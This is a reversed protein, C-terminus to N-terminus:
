ADILFDRDVQLFENEPASRSLRRTGSIANHRGSAVLWTLWREYQHGVQLGEIGAGGGKCVACIGRDMVDGMDGEFREARVVSCRRPDLEVTLSREVEHNRAPGHALGELPGLQAM